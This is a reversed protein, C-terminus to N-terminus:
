YVSIIKIQLTLMGHIWVPRKVAIQFLLSVIVQTEVNQHNSSRCSRYYLVYLIVYLCSWVPMLKISQVNDTEFQSSTHNLKAFLNIHLITKKPLLSCTSSLAVLWMILWLPAFWDPEIVQNMKSTCYWIWTIYRFCQQVLQSFLLLIVYWPCKVLAEFSWYMIFSM